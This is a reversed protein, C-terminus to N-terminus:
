DVCFRFCQKFDIPIKRNMEGLKKERVECRIRTLLTTCLGYYIGSMGETKAKSLM